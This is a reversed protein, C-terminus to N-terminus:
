QHINIGEKSLQTARKFLPNDQMKNECEEIAQSRIKELREYL